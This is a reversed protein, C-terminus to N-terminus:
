FRTLLFLKIQHYTKFLDQLRRSSMKALCRSSMKFVDQFGRLLVDQLHRSSSNALRRLSTKFVYSKSSYIPRTWSTKQLRSYPSYIERSSSTKFVDQFRRSSTNFVYSWSSYIQRSWSRKRLRILLAFINTKIFVDQLRWRFVFVFSTKLM